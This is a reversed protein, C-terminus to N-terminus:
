ERELAAAAIVAVILVAIVAAEIESFVSTTSLSAQFQGGVNLLPEGIILLIFGGVVHKAELQGRATGAHSRKFCNRVGLPDIPRSM